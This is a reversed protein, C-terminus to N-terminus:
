NQIENDARGEQDDTEKDPEEVLSGELNEWFMIEAKIEETEEAQHDKETRNQSELRTITKSEEMNCNEQKRSGEGKCFESTTTWSESKRMWSKM